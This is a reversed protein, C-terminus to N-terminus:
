DGVTITWTVDLSDGATVVVTISQVAFMNMTAANATCIGSNSGGVGSCQADFLGASTVTTANTVPSSGFTFPGAGGTATSTSIVVTGGDSSDTGVTNSDAKVAMIGGTGSSAVTTAGGDLLTTDAEDVVITGNGIGIFRFGDASFTCNDGGGANTTQFAAAIVCDDGQNVVLNDLQQYNKINGDSDRVVYEVHGMMTGAEPSIAGTALAFSPSTNMSIAGVSVTSVAALLAILTTTKM